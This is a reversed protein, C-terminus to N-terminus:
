GLKYEPKAQLPGGNPLESSIQPRNDIKKRRGIRKVYYAAIRGMNKRHHFSWEFVTM